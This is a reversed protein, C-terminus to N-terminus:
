NGGRTMEAGPPVPAPTHGFPCPRPPLDPRFRFCKGICGSRCYEAVAASDALAQHREPPAWTIAVPQGMEDFVLEPAPGAVCGCRDVHPANSAQCRPCIWGAPTTM